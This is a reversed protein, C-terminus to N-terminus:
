SAAMIHNTHQDHLGYTAGCTSDVCGGEMKDMLITKMVHFWTSSPMLTHELIKMKM